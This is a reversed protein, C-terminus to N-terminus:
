AKEKEKQNTHGVTQVNIKLIICIRHAKLSLTMISSIEEVHNLKM